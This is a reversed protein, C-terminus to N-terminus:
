SCARSSTHIDIRRDIVLMKGTIQETINCICNRTHVRIDTKRNAVWNTGRVAGHIYMRRETVLETQQM